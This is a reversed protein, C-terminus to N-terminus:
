TQVLNVVYFIDSDLHVIRTGSFIEDKSPPKIDEIKEMAKKPKTPAGELSYCKIDLQSGGDFKFEKHPCLLSTSVVAEYECTAVERVYAIEAKSSNNCAYIINATRGEQTLDCTTGGTMNFGIYPKKFGEVMMKPRKLYQRGEKKAEELQEKYENEHAIVQDYNTTGLIYEQSPKSKFKSGEEHYQRLHKGHCLEYTWYLEYKYSCTQSKLLPQLLQVPNKDKLFIGEEDKTENYNPYGEPGYLFFPIADSDPVVCKYKHNDNTSINIINSKDKIPEDEKFPGEWTIKYFQEASCLGTGCLLILRIFLYKM